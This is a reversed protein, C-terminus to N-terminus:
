EQQKVLNALIAILIEWLCNIAPAFFLFYEVFSGKVALSALGIMGVVLVVAVLILLATMM